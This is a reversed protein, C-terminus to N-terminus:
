CGPEDEDKCTMCYALRGAETLEWGRVTVASWGSGIRVERRRALGESELEAFVKAKSQFPLDRPLTGRQPELASRIEDAFLKELASIHAAKM